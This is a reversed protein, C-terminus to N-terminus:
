RVCGSRVVREVISVKPHYGMKLHYIDIKYKEKLTKKFTGKFESGLDTAAYKYQKEPFNQTFFPLNQEFNKLTVAASKNKQLSVRTFRSYVDLMVLITSNSNAKTTLDYLFCLDLALISQPSFSVWPRFSLYRKKGRLLRRERAMSYYELSSKFQQIESATVPSGDTSLKEIIRKASLDLHLPNEPDNYRLLLKRLYDPPSQPLESDMRKQKEIPM